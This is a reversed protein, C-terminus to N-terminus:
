EGLPRKFNSLLQEIEPRRYCTLSHDNLIGTAQMFSYVTTPGVFKWGRKKLAKSLRTSADSKSLTQPAVEENEPPEFRWFFAALSGEEEVMEQACKANNIVAEIKGKHRVIGADALLDDMKSQDFTAIANFDFDAFAKRFNNRKSLITRWSLGSQFSELCLKEFLDRDDTTPIGWERDHYEIFEPSSKSWECRDKEINSHM